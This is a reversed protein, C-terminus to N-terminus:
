YPALRLRPVRQFASDRTVLRQGWARATAAIWSDNEGLRGGSQALERQIRSSEWAIQQPLMLVPIRRLLTELGRYDQFGEALEGWTVISVYLEHSRHRAIFATAGGRRNERREQLLDIWFTTDTLVDEKKGGEAFV